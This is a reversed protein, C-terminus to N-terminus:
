REFDLKSIFNGHFKGFDVLIFRLFMKFHVFNKEEIAAFDKLFIFFLVIVLIM